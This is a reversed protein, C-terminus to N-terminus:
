KEIWKVLNLNESDLIMEHKPMVRFTYGYNGGTKLDIQAEYYYKREEDNAKVMQMPIVSIKEVIGNEKIRGYYVQVEINEVQINPLQVECAVKITDGANVLIDNLNDQEKIIINSWNRATERKWENFEGVLSLNTYYNNYLNVLPMYLKQTYDVLMRSTSYNGGTSKISNKM